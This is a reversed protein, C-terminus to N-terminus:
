LKVIKTQVQRIGNSIQLFYIGMPLSKMNLTGSGSTIQETILIKGLVDLIHIEGTASLDYTLEGSVANFFLHPEATNGTAVSIVHSYTYNGDFNVQKLRYYNIGPFSTHDIFSYNLIISSTGTGKVIGITEFEERDSSREVTFYDNNIENATSWELINVGNENKAKFSLFDVPLVVFCSVNYWGNVVNNLGMRSTRGALSVAAGTYNCSAGSLNPSNIVDLSTVGFAAQYIKCDPGIQLAGNSGYSATGVLFISANIAAASGALLDYQYLNVTSPGTWTNAYLKSNNPSFAVGYSSTLGTLTIPNSVVGTSNNFDFVEVINLSRIALALKQSNLSATLCGIANTGVGTHSTGVNSNVPAINLGASTLSYAKFIDNNWEHAIIWYDTLNNQYVATVKETSPVFLQINKSGVVVDGLGGNLTMDVISYRLGFTPNGQDGIVFIYFLTTSGPQPVILTQTTSEQGDLWPSNPMVTHNAAWVRRDDTYFLLNGTADSITACAEWTANSLAGNTLAVPAGGAFSLGANDGFYWYNARLSQAQAASNIILFCCINLLPNKYFIKM